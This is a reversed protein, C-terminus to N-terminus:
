QNWGMYHVHGLKCISYFKQVVLYNAFQFVHHYELRFPSTQFLPDELGKEFIAYISSNDPFNQDSPSSDLRELHRNPCNAICNTTYYENLLREFTDEAKALEKPVLSRCIAIGDQCAAVSRELQPREMSPKRLFTQLLSITARIADAHYFCRADENLTTCDKAVELVTRASERSSGELEWLQPNIPTAVTQLHALSRWLKMAICNYQSQLRKRQMMMWLPLEDKSHKEWRLFTPITRVWDALRDIM